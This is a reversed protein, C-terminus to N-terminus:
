GYEYYAFSIRESTFRPGGFVLRNGPVDLSLLSGWGPLDSFAFVRKEKGVTSRLVLRAPPGPPAHHAPWETERDFWAVWEADNSLVHERVDRPSDTLPAAKAGPGGYFWWQPPPYGTLTWPMFVVKGGPVTFAESSLPVGLELRIVRCPSVQLLGSSSVWPED